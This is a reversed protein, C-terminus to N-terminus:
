RGAVSHASTVYIFDGLASRDNNSANGAAHFTVSGGAEPATWGFTWEATGAPEVKSGALTHEIYIVRGGTAEILQTRPDSARLVGASMGTASGQDFRAALQFGARALDPRALTVTITYERGPTYMEPIGSLNMKGSADNMAHDDHCQLCTPEGFGGTLAADPGDSFAVIAVPGLVFLSILFLGPV